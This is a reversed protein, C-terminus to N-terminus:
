GLDLRVWRRDFGVLSNPGLLGQGGEWYKGFVKLHLILKALVSGFAIDMDRGSLTYFPSM